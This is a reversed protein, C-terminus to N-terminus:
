RRQMELDAQGGTALPSTRLIIGDSAPVFCTVTGYAGASDVAFHFHTVSKRSVPIITTQPHEQTLVDTLAIQGDISVYVHIMVGSAKTSDFLQKRTLDMEGNKIKDLVQQSTNRLYPPVEGRQLSERAQQTLQQDIDSDSLMLVQSTSTGGSHQQQWAYYGGGAIGALGVAVLLYILASKRWDKRVRHGNQTQDSVGSGTAEIPVYARGSRSGRRDSQDQGTKPAIRKVGRQDGQTTDSGATTPRRIAPDPREPVPQM